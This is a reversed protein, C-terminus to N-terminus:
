VQFHPADFFPKRGHGRVFAKVYGVRYDTLPGVIDNLPPEWIGGWTVRVGSAIAVSRVASAITFFHESSWDPEGKFLAVVDAAHSFGDAQIFHRSNMTRTKGMEYLVRQEEPTRAGCTIRMQFPLMPQAERLVQALDKRVRLLRKESIPELVYSM